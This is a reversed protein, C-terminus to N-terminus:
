NQSDKDNLRMNMLSARERERDSQRQKVGSLNFGVWCEKNFTM